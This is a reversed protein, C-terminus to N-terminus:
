IKVPAGPSRRLEGRLTVRGNTWARRLVQVPMGPVILGRVEYCDRLQEDFANPSDLLKFGASEFASVVGLAADHFASDEPSTAALAAVSALLSSSEDSNVNATLDGHPDATPQTLSLVLLLDTHALLWDRVAHRASFMADDLALTRRPRALQLLVIGGIYGLLRGPLSKWTFQRGFILSRLKAVPNAEHLLSSASDAIAAMGLMLQLGTLFWPNRALLGLLWVAVAAGLPGGLLVGVEGPYGLLFRVLPAGAYMGIGGGAAAFVVWAQLPTVLRPEPLAIEIQRALMRMNARLVARHTENDVSLPLTKDLLQDDLLDALLRSRLVPQLQRITRQASADRDQCEGKLWALHRGVLKAVDGSLARRGPILQQQLDYPALSIAMHRAQLTHLVVRGAFRKM